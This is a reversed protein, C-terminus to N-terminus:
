IEKVIQKVKDYDPLIGPNEAIWSYRVIGHQDLVFVARQAATYGEVGAFNPLKVGYALVAQRELDSLLPFSLSNKEAFASNAFPSDVSIGVVQAEADNLEGLQDRLQCMEDTCVGTFAGPYFAIVTKRGAFDQLSRKERNTDFLTFDPAKEGIKPM